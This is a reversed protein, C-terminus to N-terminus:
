GAARERHVAAHGVQELPEGERGLLDPRHTREVRGVQQSEPALAADFGAGVGVQHKPIVIKRGRVRPHVSVKDIFFRLWNLNAGASNMGKRSWFTRSRTRAILRSSM